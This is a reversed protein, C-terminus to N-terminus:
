ISMEQLLTFNNFYGLSFLKKFSFRGFYFVASSNGAAGNIYLRMTGFKLFDAGVLSANERSSTNWM